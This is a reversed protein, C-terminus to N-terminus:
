HCLKEDIYQQLKQKGLMARAVFFASAMAGMVGPLIASQGAAYLNLLPLKGVLNFQGVKQRIGYAAGYPSHLYDRFTLMSASDACRFGDKLEPIYESLRSIISETRTKKYERYSEGRNGTRTDAWQAVDEPLSLEFATMTRVPVGHAKEDYTLMVLPRERQWEPRMMDNMDGDPFISFIADRGTTPVTEDLTGFISFFGSSPEYGEVRHRFAPSTHEEPLVELINRPHITFTCNEASVEDGDTLVFRRVRRERIDALERITTKCRIDVDLDEFAEKFANVFGEGGNEVRATSEYMACAIRAHNAFSIENPQSGHCMCFTSLVMKLAPDDFYADLVDQLSMFDDESPPPIEAALLRITMSATGECVAVFRKFYRDIAERSGPFDEQLRARYRAFGSPIEHIRGADPLAIRHSVDDALFQPKIADDLDLVRLMEDFMGSRDRCLGGTFHFGVDYPVGHRRFRAISGGINPAKELLLVKRGQRAFLLALTLGSIGSGVIINDYHNM